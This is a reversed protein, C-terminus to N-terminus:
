AELNNKWVSSWTPNISMSAGVMHCCSESNTSPPTTVLQVLTASFLAQGCRGVFPTWSCTGLNRFAAKGWCTIKEYPSDYQLTKFPLWLSSGPLCVSQHNKRVHTSYAIVKLLCCAPTTYWHNREAGFSSAHRAGRSAQFLVTLNSCLASFACFTM